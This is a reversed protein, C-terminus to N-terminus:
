HTAFIRAFNLHQGALEGTYTLFQNSRLNAKVFLRSETYIAVKKPQKKMMDACAPMWGV